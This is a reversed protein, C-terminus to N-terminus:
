LHNRHSINKLIATKYHYNGLVNCIILSFLRQSVKLSIIGEIALSSIINFHIDVHVAELYRSRQGLNSMTKILYLDEYAGNEIFIERNKM